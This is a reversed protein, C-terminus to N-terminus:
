QHQVSTADVCDLANNTFPITKRSADRRRNESAEQSAAVPASHARSLNDGTLSSMDGNFYATKEFGASARRMDGPKQQGSMVFSSNNLVRSTFLSAMHEIRALEELTFHFCEYYQSTKFSEQGNMANLHTRYYLSKASAEVWPVTSYRHAEHM